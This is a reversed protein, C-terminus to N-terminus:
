HIQMLLMDLLSKDSTRSPKVKCRYILGDADANIAEYTYGSIVRDTQEDKMEYPVLELFATDGDGFVIDLVGYGGQDPPVLGVKVSRGRITGNIVYAFYEKGKAKFLEREILLRKAEQAGNTENVGNTENTKAM